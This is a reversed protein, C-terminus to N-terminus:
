LQERSRDTDPSSLCSWLNEVKWSEEGWRTGHFERFIDHQTPPRNTPKWLYNSITGNDSKTLWWWNALTNVLWWDVRQSIFRTFKLDLEHGGALHYVVKSIDSWWWLLCAQETHIATMIRLVGIDVVAWLQHATTSIQSGRFVDLIM